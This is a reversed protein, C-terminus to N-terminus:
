KKFFKYLIYILILGIIGYVLIWTGALMSLVILYGALFGILISIIIKTIKNM